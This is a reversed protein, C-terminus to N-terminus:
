IGWALNDICGDKGIDLKAGCASGSIDPSRGDKLSLEECAEYIGKPAATRELAGVQNVGQQAGGAFPNVSMQPRTQYNNYISLDEIGM